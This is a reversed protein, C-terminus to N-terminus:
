QLCLRAVELCLDNHLTALQIAHESLFNETSPHRTCTQCSTQLSFHLMEKSWCSTKEGPKHLSIRSNHLVKPCNSQVKKTMKTLTFYHTALFLSTPQITENPFEADLSIRASIYSCVHVMTKYLVNTQVGLSARVQDSCTQIKKEKLNMNNLNLM